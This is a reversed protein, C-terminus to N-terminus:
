PTIRLIIPYDKVLLDRIVLNGDGTETFLEQEFGNLVDIGAVREASSAPFTLTASAGPDDDVAPGDTWVALLKDGNSLSFGYYKINSADSEITVPLNAPQSGAMVTALARIISYSIPMVDDPPWALGTTVGLGLHIIIARAFYKAASTDTFDISERPSGTSAATRWTMEETMFEGEFGNSAAVMKIEEVFAPYNEWYNAMEDPRRGGSGRPDDSPTVGYMAHWSFGDVLPMVESNLLGWMWDRCGDLLTDPVAGVVIKADPDEERIVPITVKVLHVYADVPMGSPKEFSLDPENLIEYYTIRDRFHRVMFRVWNLYSEIDENSKYYVSRNETHWVDLVLMIKIKNAVLTDVIQDENPDVTYENKEWDAHQWRGDPDPVLRM